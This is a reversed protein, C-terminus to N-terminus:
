IFELGEQLDFDIFTAKIRKGEEVKIIWECFIGNDYHGPYGPSVLYGSTQNEIM